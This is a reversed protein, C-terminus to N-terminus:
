QLFCASRRPDTPVSERRLSGRQGSGGPLEPDKLMVRLTRKQSWERISTWAM